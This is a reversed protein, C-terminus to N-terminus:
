PFDLYSGGGLVTVSSDRLSDGIPQFRGGLCSSLFAEAVANFSLQNNVSAFGHGEDPYLLYIVPLDKAQMAQVIRDSESQKVRPDNSGQGILLPRKIRDVHTLPSRERLFTRGEETRHDGIRTAFIEVAPAWYPPISELHTILNSPGAFAVGCAFVDPTFTLGVLAAYGGYSSGMIAIRDPDAVGEEIAWNVADILDDHMKGAFEKNGANLFQKGFGDSGRFNVSLVAYGRNALWQHQPDYGWYNRAWPGGHVLLVMPVPDGPRGDGDPDTWTPLSLYSILELGDRANIVIPHMQALPPEELGEQSTKFLFEGEHRGRDYHYYKSPGDGLTYLVIWHRNDLSQSIVGFDGDLISSLHVMDPEISDDLVQWHTREYTFAVAQPYGGTPEVIADSIDARLDEAIMTREGTDLDVTFLAATNRERSDIMYFQGGEDFGVPFTRMSDEMAIKAFPRWEGENTPSHIESGGDPTFRIAFRVQYDDDTIFGLFGGNRQVLRREGNRIDIRYLDHLAPDRENLKVLIEVPFKPSVEQIAAKVGEPPTLSTTQRTTLDVSYIRWNEDGDTDQMYLIHNNTFAWFYYQIGHTTDGTVPEAASPNDLPAVWVNMFCGSWSCVPARYSIYKGDPSLQVDTNYPLTFLAERPILDPMGSSGTAPGLDSEPVDTSPRDAVESAEKVLPTPTSKITATPMPFPTPTATPIPAQTPTVAPSLTAAPAAEAGCAIVLLFLSSILTVLASSKSVTGM